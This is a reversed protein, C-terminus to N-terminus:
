APLIVRADVLSIGDISQIEKVRENIESDNWEAFAVINSINSDDSYDVKDMGKIKTLSKYISECKDFNKEKISENWKILLLVMSM